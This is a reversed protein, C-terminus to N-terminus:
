QQTRHKILFKEELFDAIPAPDLLSFRPLGEYIIDDSVIALLEEQHCVPKDYATKRFVEIKIKGESKYGETFIIDVDNIHQLIELLTLEPVTKKILAMKQPSSICVVDAGAEAHQWTDKGPHDIDFSHADHKIVALKYGRRKMEAVLKTLYTTKGCGSLGVFSIVPIINIGGLDSTVKSIYYNEM